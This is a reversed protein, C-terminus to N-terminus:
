SQGPCPVRRFRSRRREITAMDRERNKIIWAVCMDISHFRDLMSRPLSPALSSCCCVM